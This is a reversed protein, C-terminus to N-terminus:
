AGPIQSAAGADSRTYKRENDIMDRLEAVVGARASENTAIDNVTECGHKKYLDAADGESLLEMSWAKGYADTLEGMTTPAVSEVTEAPAPPPNDAPQPTAALKARAEAEAKEVEDIDVGRKKTWVGSKTKSKTTAHVSELWPTGNSDLPEGIRPDEEPPVPNTPVPPPSELSESETVDPVCDEADLSDISDLSSIMIRVTDRESEVRPDFEIKM